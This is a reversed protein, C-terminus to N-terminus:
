TSQTVEQADANSDTGASPGPESRRQSSPSPTSSFDVRLKREFIQKGALIEKAAVASEVDIFDAHAFGRPQGTRRDIAVRVDVVNRIERFLENLDRDSMEFSMNGIFLTKSPPGSAPIVKQVPPDARGYQITLPRGEFYQGSLEEVAREASEMDAYQVFGFGKSLGRADYIIRVSEVKGMRSMEKELDQEGVSFFLNGVYVTKSPPFSRFPSRAAPQDSAPPNSETTGTTEAIGEQVPEDATSSADLRFPASTFTAKGSIFTMRVVDSVVPRTSSRLLVAALVNSSQKSSFCRSASTSFRTQLVARRLLFRDLWTLLHMGATMTEIPVYM